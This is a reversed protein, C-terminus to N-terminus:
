IKLNFACYQGWFRPERWNSYEEIFFTGKLDPHANSIFNLNSMSMSMPEVRLLQKRERFEDQKFNLLHFERGWLFAYLVFGGTSNIELEQPYLDTLDEFHTIQWKQTNSDWLAQALIDEGDSQKFNYFIVPSGDQQFNAAMRTNFFDVDYGYEFLFCSAEFESRNVCTGLDDGAASYLHETNFDYFTYYHDDFFANHLKHLGFTILLGEPNTSYKVAKTYITGWNDDYPIPNILIRREFSNGNDRSIWVFEPEYDPTSGLRVRGLFYIDGNLAQYAAGYTVGTSNPLYEINWANISHPTKSIAHVVPHNGHFSHFVHLYGQQDYIIQPYNHADPEVPSDMIKVPDEWSNTKHDYCSIFPACASYTGNKGSSYVIFTKQVTDSYVGSSLQTKQRAYGNVTYNAFQNISLDGTELQIDDFGSYTGRLFIWWYGFSFFSGVILILITTLILKKKWTKNKM